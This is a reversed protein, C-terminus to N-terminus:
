RELMGRAARAPAQADREHVVADALRRAVEPALEEWGQSRLEEVRLDTVEGRTVPDDRRRLKELGSARTPRTVAEGYRDREVVVKARVDFRRGRNERARMRGRREEQCSRGESPRV